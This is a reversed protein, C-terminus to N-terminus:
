KELLHEGRVPMTKAIVGRTNLVKEEREKKDRYKAKVTKIRRENYRERITPNVAYTDSRNLGKEIRMIVGTESLFDLSEEMRRQQEFVTYKELQKRASKQVVARTFSEEEGTIIWDFVWEDLPQTGSLMSVDRLTYFVYSKMFEIAELMREVPVTITEPATALHFIFAYRGCLGLMKGLASQFGYPSGILAHDQQKENVWLEFERFAKTAESELNYYTSETSKIRRLLSEWLPAVSMFDPFESSINTCKDLPVVFPTFRQFLGDEELNKINKSLVAPQINVYASVALNDIQITGRGVRDFIYSDAEYSQTWFSRDESGQPNCIKDFWTKGEDLVLSLGDPRREILDVVKQSTADTFTFRLPLPPIPEKPVFPLQDMRMGDAIWEASESAKLSNKEASAWSALHAKYVKAEILYRERDEIEFKKFAAFMPKSAPSKKAAPPAVVINWAVPPVTYGPQLELEANSNAATCIATLGAAIPVIPNAGIKHALEEAYDCLVKPIIHMPMDPIFRKEFIMDDDTECAIERFVELAQELSPGYGGKVAYFYLSKGSIGDTRTKFSQWQGLCDQESIYKGKETARASWEHWIPFYQPNFSHLAFGINVWTM